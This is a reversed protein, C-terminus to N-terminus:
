GWVFDAGKLLSLVTGGDMSSHKTGPCKLESYFNIHRM